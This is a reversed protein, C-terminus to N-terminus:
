KKKKITKTAKYISNYWLMHTNYYLTYYDSYEVM